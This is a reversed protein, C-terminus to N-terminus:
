TLQEPQNDGFQIQREGSPSVILKMPYEGPEKMSSIRKVARDIWTPITVTTTGNRRRNKVQYGAVHKRRIDALHHKHVPGYRSLVM